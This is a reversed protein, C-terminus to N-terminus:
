HLSGQSQTWVVFRNVLDQCIGGNQCPSSACENIDEECLRGSFGPKCDCSFALPSDINNVGKLNFFFDTQKSGSFLAKKSRSISIILPLKMKIANFVSTFLVGCKNIALSYLNFTYVNFAYDPWRQVVIFYIHRQKLCKMEYYVCEGCSHYGRTPHFEHCWLCLLHNLWMCPVLTPMGKTTHITSFHIQAFVCELGKRWPMLKRQVAADIHECKGGGAPGLVIEKNVELYIEEWTSFPLPGM